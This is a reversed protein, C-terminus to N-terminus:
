NVGIHNSKVHRSNKYGHGRQTANESKDLRRLPFRSQGLISFSEPARRLQNKQIRYTRGHIGIGYDVGVLSRGRTLMRTVHGFVRGLERGIARGPAPSVRAIPLLRGSLDQHGGRIAM